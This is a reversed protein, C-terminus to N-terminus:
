KLIKKLGYPTIFTTFICMIVLMAYVRMDILGYKLGIGSIILGMLGRANLGIGVAAAEKSKLDAIVGGLFAGVTKGAIAFILAILLFQGQLINQTSFPDAFNFVLSLNLLLGLYAFLIPSFFSFTISSIVDYINSFAEKGITSGKILIGAYFVGIIFSIELLKGLLGIFIGFILIVFFQSEKSIKSIFSRIHSIPSDGERSMFKYIYYILLLFFLIKLVMMMISWTDMKGQDGQAYSLALALFFMCIIDDIVASAIIIKGTRTNLKGMDMLIRVSVPLATLSFVVIIFFVSMFDLNFIVGVAVGAIIALNNGTMAIFISPRLYEKFDSIHMQMGGFFLIFFIGIEALVDIGKIEPSVLNLLSPGLIVGAIMEGIIPPQRIRAFIEGTIKAVVLILLLPLIIDM